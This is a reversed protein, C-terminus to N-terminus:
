PRPFGTLPDIPAIRWDREIQAPNVWTFRFAPVKLRRMVAHCEKETLGDFPEGDGLSSPRDALIVIAGGFHANGIKAAGAPWGNPVHAVLLALRGLTVQRFALDDGFLGVLARRLWPQFRVSMVRRDLVRLAFTSPHM